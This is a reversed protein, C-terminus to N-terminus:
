CARSGAGGIVLSGWEVVGAGAGQSARTAQMFYAAMVAQIRAAPWAYQVHSNRCPVENQVTFSLALQGGVKHRLAM